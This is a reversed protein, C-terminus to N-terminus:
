IRYQEADREKFQIGLGPRTFDPILLGNQPSIYGDFLMGEIREHDHFYELHIAKSAACCAQMHVTPATHASLPLHYAECLANVKLFGTLGGCRTADAQLIDVAGAALMQNFYWSNYGYEGAAIDMESPVRSRVFRLGPLNDSSVPEEFWSIHFPEFLHSFKVAEQPFYAGNADIFLQDQEGIVQRAFQIRQYDQDKERGIKMKFMWIGSNKWNQFQKALQENSYSTFGGSGYAPIQNKEVGLLVVLPLNLIRSKLDWLAIDVASIAMTTIGALGLNRCRTIMKEWHSTFVNQDLLLEKLHTEIFRGTAIDGYTYGFGISDGSFVKVTVLITKNWSITGDSEPADTDIQYCTVRVDSIRNDPM